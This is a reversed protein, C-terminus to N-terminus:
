RKKGNYNINESNYENILKKLEELSKRSLGELAIMQDMDDVESSANDKGSGDFLGYKNDYMNRNIDEMDFESLKEIARDHQAIGIMGYRLLYDMYEDNSEYISLNSRNIKSSTQKNIKIRYGLSVLKFYADRYKKYTNFYLSVIIPIDSDYLGARGVKKLYNNTVERIGSEKNMVDEKSLIYRTYKRKIDEMDFDDSNVKVPLFVNKYSENDKEYNRYSIYCEMVSPNKMKLNLMKNLAIGIDNFGNYMSTFDDLDRINPFPISIVRRSYRVVLNYKEM